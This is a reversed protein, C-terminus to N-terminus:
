KSFASFDDNDILYLNLIDIHFMQLKKNQEQDIGALWLDIEKFM